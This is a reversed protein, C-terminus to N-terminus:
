RYWVELHESCGMVQPWMSCAVESDCIVAACMLVARRFGSLHSGNEVVASAQNMKGV